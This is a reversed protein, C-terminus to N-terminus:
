SSSTASRHILPKGHRPARLREFSTSAMRRGDAAATRLTRNAPSSSSPQEVTLPLGRAIRLRKVM